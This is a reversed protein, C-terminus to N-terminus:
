VHARGIEDRERAKSGQARVVARACLVGMRGGETGREEVAEEEWPSMTVTGAAQWTTARARM